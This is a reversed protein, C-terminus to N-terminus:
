VAMFKLKDGMQLAPRIEAATFDPLLIKIRVKCKFPARSHRLGAAAMHCNSRSASRACGREASNRILVAGIKIRVKGKRRSEIKHRTMVLRSAKPKAAFPSAL